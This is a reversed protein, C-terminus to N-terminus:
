RRTAPSSRSCKLAAAQEGTPTEAYSNVPPTMSMRLWVYTRLPSRAARGPVLRLSSAGDATLSDLADAMCQDFTRRVADGNTANDKANKKDGDFM